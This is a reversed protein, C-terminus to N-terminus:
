APIPIPGMGLVATCQHIRNTTTTPHHHNISAAAPAATKRAAVPPAVGGRGGGPVKLKPGSGPGTSVRPRRGRSRDGEALVTRRGLMNNCTRAFDHQPGQPGLGVMVPGVGASPFPSGLASTPARAALRSAPPEVVLRRRCQQSNCGCNYYSPGPVGCVSASCWWCNGGCRGPVVGSVACQPVMRWVGFSGCTHSNHIGEPCDNLM